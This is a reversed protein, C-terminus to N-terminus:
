NIENFILDFILGNTNIDAKYLKVDKDIIKKIENINKEDCKYGFYISHINADSNLKIDQYDDDNNKNYSILRMENEYEWAKSKLAFIEKISLNMNEINTFNFKEDEYKVSFCSKTIDKNELKKDILLSQKVKYCICIGKHSKAYHSWMLLNKNADGELTYNKNFVFCSIRILELQKYSQFNM